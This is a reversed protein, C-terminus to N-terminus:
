RPPLMVFYVVSKRGAMEAERFVFVSFESRRAGNTLTVLFLFVLFTRQHVERLRVRILARTEPGGNGRVRRGHREM